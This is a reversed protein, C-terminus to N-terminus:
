SVSSVFTSVVERDATEKSQETSSELLQPVVLPPNSSSADNHSTLSQEHVHSSRGADASPLPDVWQETEEAQLDENNAAVTNQREELTKRLTM